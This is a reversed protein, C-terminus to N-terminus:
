KKTRKERVCYTYDILSYEVEGSAILNKLESIVREQSGGIGNAIQTANSNPKLVLFAKIRKQWFDAEADFGIWELTYRYELRDDYLPYYGGNRAAYGSVIETIRSEKKIKILCDVKLLALIYNYYIKEGYIGFVYASFPIYRELLYLNERIFRRLVEEDEIEGFSSVPNQNLLVQKFANEFIM